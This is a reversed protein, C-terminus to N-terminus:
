SGSLEFLQVFGEIAQARLNDGFEFRDLRWLLDQFPDM